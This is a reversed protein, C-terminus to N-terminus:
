TVLYTAVRAGPEVTLAGPICVRLYFWFFFVLVVVYFCGSWRKSNRSGGGGDWMGVYILM